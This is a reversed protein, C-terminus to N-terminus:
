PRTGRWRFALEAVSLAGAAAGRLTNHSLCVFQWGNPGLALSPRLRGITVTMGGGADRDLRPQPRDLANHYRLARPSTEERDRDFADWASRIDSETASSRLRVAVSASHGDTVPVRFCQASVTLDVPVISAGALSGLLKPTEEALKEEESPIHPVVNDILDMASVGPYGAGSAAQLTTVQVAEIGFARELPALALTMGITSCNPSCVLAGGEPYPQHETLALHDANVEPIVLPVGPDMRHASANSVVYIGANAYRTEIEKAVSSDLSSLALRIEPHPPEGAATVVLSRFEAPVEGPLRWAAADGYPRGASRSSAVVSVVKFRPHGALLSIFRQGVAGTAGLVAIHIRQSDAM